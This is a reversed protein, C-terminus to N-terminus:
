RLRGSSRAEGIADAAAGRAAVADAEAAGARATLAAETV